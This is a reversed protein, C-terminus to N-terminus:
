VVSLDELPSAMGELSGTSDGLQEVPVGLKDLITVYLNALPTDKPLVVHRDGKIKGGGGGALMIPLNDHSHLNANGIGAGYVIMVNDLLTGEVDETARLRELFSGFLSIHYANVKAVKEVAEPDNVLHSIQHHSDSVGIEPYARPTTERTFMFGFVRTLDAQFALAQLEYLLKARDGFSSPIGKPKEVLPLERDSQEEAMQIRHEVGRVAELYQDLKRQDTPGLTRSLRRVEGTVADLVSRDQKIRTLRAVRDTSDAGGFLLEFVARPDREMPLPTTPSTWSITNMYACSYGPDCAGSIENSEMALGLSKIQTEKGLVNAAIQDVSVGARIDSGQTKKIHTCTLFTGSGRSHDGVGENGQAQAELNSLGSFVVLRDRVPELPQLSPSLAFGPGTSKPFFHPLSMGNPVYIAGFRLVPKPAAFAPAMSDLFPLALTAGMGRLVTRRSLVRKTIIM